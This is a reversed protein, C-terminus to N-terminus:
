TGIKNNKSSPASYGVFDLLVGEAFTPHVSPLNVVRVASGLRFGECGDLLRL